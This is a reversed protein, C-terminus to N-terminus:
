SNFISLEQYKSFYTSWTFLHSDLSLNSRTKHLFDPCSICYFLYEYLQSPTNDRLILGHRRDIFQPIGCNLSIISPVKFWLAELAAPSSGELRSPMVFMNATSLLQLYQCQSHQRAHLSFDINLSKAFTTIQYSINGFDCDQPKGCIHVILPKTGTKALKPLLMYLSDLLIDIGKRHSNARAVIVTASKSLPQPSPFKIHPFFPRNNNQYTSKDGGYPAILYSKNYLLLNHLVNYNPAVILDSQQVSKITSLWNASSPNTSIIIESIEYLLYQRAYSPVTIYDQYHVLIPRDLLISTLGSAHSFLWLYVLQPLLKLKYFLFLLISIYQLLAILINTSFVPSLFSKWKGLLLQLLLPPCLITLNGLPQLALVTFYSHNTFPTCFLIHPRTKMNLNYSPVMLSLVPSM